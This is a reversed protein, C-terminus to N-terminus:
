RREAVTMAIRCPDGKGTREQWTTDATTVWAVVRCGVAGALQRAGVGAATSFSDSHTILHVATTALTILAVVVHRVAAGRQRAGVRCAIAVPLLNSIKDGSASTGAGATVICGVVAQLWQATGSIM